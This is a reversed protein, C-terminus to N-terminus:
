FRENIKRGYGLGEKRRLIQMNEELLAFYRKDVAKCFAEGCKSADFLQEVWTNM